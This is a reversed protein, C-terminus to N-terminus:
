YGWLQAFLQFLGNNETELLYVGYMGTVTGSTLVWRAVKHWAGYVREPIYDTICSVFGQHCHFILLTSFVADVVSYEIGAAFPVVFLPVLAMSIVREYGWHYAGHYWDAPPLQFADNVTGIVGGAPENKLKYQSFDPKLKALFSVNRTTAFTTLSPTRSTVFQRRALSFM